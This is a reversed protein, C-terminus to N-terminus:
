ASWQETPKVPWVPTAVPYVALQRLASRYSAFESQNLLYPNSKAPDAVDAITTWDTEYLLKTAQNKCEVLPEEMKLIDIQADCQAQSPVPIEPSFWALTGYDLVNTMSWQADPTLAILAQPYGITTM